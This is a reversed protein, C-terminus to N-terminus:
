DWRINGTFLTPNQFIAPNMWGKFFNNYNGAMTKLMIALEAM